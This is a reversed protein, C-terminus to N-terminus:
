FSVTVTSSCASNDTNCVQYSFSGGGKGGVADTYFGDNATTTLASNDRRINVNTGTAGSWTLDVFRSGKTKYARASLTIGSSPANVTVTIAASGTLGGNDTVSATITHTGVVLDNRSFSGGTGLAGQLSSTWELSGTLTGQEADTATGTFTVPTGSTVSTSGGPAVPSSIGVTPATNAPTGTCESPKAFTEAISITCRFINCSAQGDAGVGVGFQAFADWVVCRAERKADASPGPENTISSLIGDRMDEFAPGSPTYNMGDVVHTLLDEIASSGYKALWLERLKWMTAAYIEGNFHVSSGSFDGYTRSYNTYPASRIGVSTGTSYEALRDDGNFYIALVDSMGEGISGSMLGSMGGIMRWTLGHGYEHYVIDSDVDGDRDPNPSTWLFMQMRPRSGDAPTAFNANNTGSGDQAEANVPDNGAGGKGFNNTQFNGASETFGYGYLRDHLINNLYFLNTVAAKQNTPDTPAIATNFTFVFNQSADWTPRSGADPSNNADRDLYADVNNGITTNTTVWGLPSATGDAPNLVLEQPTSTPSNRFIYYGDTNTRLEEHLIQGRGSVVTHRLVNDGDWTVVLYGSDLVAGRLPLAVRTVTPSEYFRSPRAFTSVNGVTSTEQLDASVGPYHRSMVARLAADPGIQAPRLARATSVLNEVITRLEGGPGFSARVYTGYVDLGAVRQGFDAHAVGRFEHDKTQVLEALTAEDLGARLYNRVTDARSPGPPALQGTQAARAVRAGKSGLEILADQAFVPIAFVVLLLPSLAAALVRRAM